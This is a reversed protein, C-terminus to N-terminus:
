ISMRGCAGRSHQACFHRWSRRRIHERLSRNLCSTRCNRPHQKAVLSSRQEGAIRFDINSSNNVPLPFTFFTHFTSFSAANAAALNGQIWLDVTMAEEKRWDFLLPDINGTGQCLQPSVEWAAQCLKTCRHCHNVSSSVILKPISNPSVRDQRHCQCYSQSSTLEM